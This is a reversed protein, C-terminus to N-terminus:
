YGLVAKRRRFYMERFRAETSAQLDSMAEEINEEFFRKFPKRATMHPLDQVEDGVLSPLEVPAPVTKKPGKVVSLKKAFFRQWDQDPKM